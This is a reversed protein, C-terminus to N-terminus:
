RCEGRNYPSWATWGQSDRIGKAIRLNTAPDFLAGRSVGYEDAWFPMVQMLGSAGSSPNQASPNGGSEHAMLCLARDVESGFYSAALERWQEVGAGMGRYPGDSSDPSPTQAVPSPAPPPPPDLHRGDWNPHRELMDFWEWELVFFMEAEAKQRRANWDDLWENLESWSHPAIPPLTLAMVLSLAQLM